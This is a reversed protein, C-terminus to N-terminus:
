VSLDVPSVNETVVVLGICCCAVVTLSEPDLSSDELSIAIRLDFCEILVELDELLICFLM